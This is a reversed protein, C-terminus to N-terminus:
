DEKRRENIVLSRKQAHKIKFTKYTKSYEYMM